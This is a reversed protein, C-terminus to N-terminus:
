FVDETLRNIIVKSFSKIEKYACWIVDCLSPPFQLEDVKLISEQQVVTWQPQYFSCIM